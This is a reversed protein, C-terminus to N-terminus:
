PRAAKWGFARLAYYRTWAQLIGVRCSLSGNVLNERLRLICEDRYMRDAEERVRGPPQFRRLLAYAVDHLTAPMLNFQGGTCGIRVGQVDDFSCSSGDSGQWGTALLWARVNMDSCVGLVSGPPFEAERWKRVREAGRIVRPDHLAPTEVVPM